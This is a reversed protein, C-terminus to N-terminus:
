EEDSLIEAAATSMKLAASAGLVFSAEVLEAETKCRGKEKAYMISGMVKNQEQEWISKVARVLIIENVMKM